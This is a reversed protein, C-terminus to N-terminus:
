LQKFSVVGDEDMQFKDKGEVCVIYVLTTMTIDLDKLIDESSISKRESLLNILDTVVPCM